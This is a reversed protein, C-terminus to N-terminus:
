SGWPDCCASWVRQTCEWPTEPCATAAQHRTNSRSEPLVEISCRLHMCSGSSSRTCTAKEGRWGAYYTLCSCSMVAIHIEAAQNSTEDTLAPLTIDSDAEVTPGPDIKQPAGQTMSYCVDGLQVFLYAQLLEHKVGCAANASQCLYGLADSAKGRSCHVQMLSVCGTGARVQSLFFYCTALRLRVSPLLECPEPLEELISIATQLYLVCQEADELKSSGPLSYGGIQSDMNGCYSEM